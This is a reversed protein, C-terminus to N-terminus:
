YGLRDRWSSKDMRPFIHGKPHKHETAESILGKQTARISVFRPSDSGPYHRLSHVPVSAAIKAFEGNAHQMGVEAIHASDPLAFEVFEGGVGVSIPVSKVVRSLAAEGSRASSSEVTRLRYILRAHPDPVGFRKHADDVDAQIVEWYVYGWQESRPLLTVETRNRQELPITSAEM